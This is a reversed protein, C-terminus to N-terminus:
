VDCGEEFVGHIGGIEGIPAICACHSTHTHTIDANMGKIKACSEQFTINISLHSKFECHNFTIAVYCQTSVDTTRLSM